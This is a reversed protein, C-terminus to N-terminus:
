VTQKDTGWAYLRCCKDISLNILSRPPPALQSRSTVGPLGSTFNYLSAKFFELYVIWNQRHRTWDLIKLLNRQLFIIMQKWKSLLTLAGSQQPPCQVCDTIEEWIYLLWQTLLPRLSTVANPCFSHLSWFFSSAYDHWFDVYWETLFVGMHLCVLCRSGFM